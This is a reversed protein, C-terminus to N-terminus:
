FEYIVRLDYAFAFLLTSFLTHTIIKLTLTEVDSLAHPNFRSNRVHPPGTESFGRVCTRLHGETHPDGRKVPCTSQTQLEECPAARYRLVRECLYM